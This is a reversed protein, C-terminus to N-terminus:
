WRGSERRATRRHPQPASTCASTRPPWRQPAAPGRPRPPSPEQRSATAPRPTTEDHRPCRPFGTLHPPTLRSTQPGRGRRTAAASSDRQSTATVGDHPSPSIVGGHPLPLERRLRPPIVRGHPGHHPPTHFGGTLHHHCPADRQPTAAQQRHRPRAKCSGPPPSGTASTLAPQPAAPVAQPGATGGGPRPTLPPGARHRPVCPMQPKLRGRRQPRAPTWPHSADLGWLM